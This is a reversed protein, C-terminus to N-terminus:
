LKKKKGTAILVIAVIAGVGGVAILVIAVTKTSSGDDGTTVPAETV